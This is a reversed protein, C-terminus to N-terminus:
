QRARGGQTTRREANKSAEGDETDFADRCLAECWELAEQEQAADAALHRYGELLSQEDPRKTSSFGKVSDGEAVLQVM